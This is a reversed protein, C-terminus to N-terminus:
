AAGVVTVTHTGPADWTLGEYIFGTRGHGDPDSGHGTVVAKRLVGDVRIILESCNAWHIGLLTSQGAAVTVADRGAPIPVQERSHLVDPDVSYIVCGIPLVDTVRVGIELPFVAPPVCASVCAKDESWMGAWNLVSGGPCSVDYQTIGIRETDNPTEDPTLVNGAGDSLVDTHTGDPFECQYLFHVWVEDGVRVDPRVTFEFWIPANRALCGEAPGVEPWDLNSAPQHDGTACKWSVSYATVPPPTPDLTLSFYWTLMQGGVYVDVQQGTSTCPNETPFPEGTADLDPAAATGGVLEHQAVSSGRETLDDFYCAEGTFTVKVATAGPDLSASGYWADRCSVQWDITYAPHEPAAKWGASLACAGTPTVASTVAIEYYDVHFGSSGTGKVHMSYDGGTISASTWILQQHSSGAPAAAAVTVGALTIDATRGSGQTGYINVVASGGAPVPVACVIPGPASATVFRSTGGSMVSSSFVTGGSCEGDERRDIVDASTATLRYDCLDLVDVPPAAPTLLAAGSCVLAALLLLGLQRRARRVRGSVASLAPRTATRPRKDRERGAVM